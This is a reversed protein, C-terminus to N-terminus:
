RKSMSIIFMINPSCIAEGRTTAQACMKEYYIEEAEVAAAAQPTTTTTQQQLLMMTIWVNMARLINEKLM